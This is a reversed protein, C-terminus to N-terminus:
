MLSFGAPYGPSNPDCLSIRLRNDNGLEMINANVNRGRDLELLRRFTLLTKIIFIGLSEDDDVTKMEGLLKGIYPLLLSEERSRRFELWRYRTTWVAVVVLLVNVWIPILDAIVKVGDTIIPSHMAGAFVEILFM